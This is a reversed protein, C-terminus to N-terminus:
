RRKRLRVRAVRLADRRQGTDPDLGNKVGYGVLLEGPAIECVATYGSYREADIPTHDTWTHGSDTSFMVFAGPRGTSCVLTGDSMVCLDPWVGEVGIRQVPTWTRGNDRSRSVMLPNDQWGPNSNGGTRVLALVERSPLRRIVLESYGENGLFPRYAVTSLYEWTRGRDSSRGIYSRRMTGGKRYRDPEADGEFWGYMSSLLDGNELEVISRGFLPGVHRSHGLAARALPVIVRTEIPGDITRGGDTSLFLQGRFEGKEETPFAKYATAVIDGSPLRNPRPITADGARWSRGGDESRFADALIRDNGLHILNSFHTGPGVYVSPEVEVDLQDHPGPIRVTFDRYVRTTGGYPARATNGALELTLVHVGPPWQATPVQVRVSGARPDSDNAGNDHVLHDPGDEIYGVKGKADYTFGPLVETEAWTYPPRLRVALEGATAHKSRLGCVLTGGPEVTRPPLDFEVPEVLGTAGRPLVRACARTDDVDIQLNRFALVHKGDGPRNHAFVVLYHTGPALGRTPIWLAVQGVGPDADAQGNDVINGSPHDPLVAHGTRKEVVFGDPVDGEGARYPTRVRFNLPTVGNAEARVRLCFAAGRAVENEDVRIDTITIQGAAATEAGACLVLSLVGNPVHIAPRGRGQRM